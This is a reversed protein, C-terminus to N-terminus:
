LLLIQSYSSLTAVFVWWFSETQGWFSHDPSKGWLCRFLLNVLVNYFHILTLCQMCGRGTQRNVRSSLWWQYTVKRQKRKHITGNGTHQWPWRQWPSCLSCFFPFGLQLKIGCYKIWQCMARWQLASPALPATESYPSRPATLDKQQM